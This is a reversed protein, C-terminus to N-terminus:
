ATPSNGAPAAEFNKELQEQDSDTFGSLDMVVDAITNVIRCDLNMIIELDADSDTWVRNGDEDVQGFQMLRGKFRRSAAERDDGFAVGYEIASRENEILSQCRAKGLNPVQAYEYQRQPAQMIVARGIVEGNSEM